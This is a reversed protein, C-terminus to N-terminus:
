PHVCTRAHRPPARGAPRSIGRTLLLVLVASAGIWILAFLVTGRLVSTLEETDWARDSEIWAYGYLASRSYIPKVSEWRYKDVTIVHASTGSRAVPIQAREEADLPRTLGDDGSEYLTNGAPDTVRVRSVSPAQSMMRVSLAIWEPSQKRLAEELRNSSRIPRTRSGTSRAAM